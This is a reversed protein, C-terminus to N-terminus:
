GLDDLQEAAISAHRPDFRPNIDLAASLLERARDDDDNAAAIMGAHYLLAPDETGVALAHQMQEDAEEYSGNAYLTWALMDYAGVDQRGAIDARALELAWDPDVDVLFGALHRGESPFEGGTEEALALGLATMEHAKDQDGQYEYLKALEGYIDAIPRAELVAEYGAIADDVRGQAFHVKPLLELIGGNGPDLALGELLVEEAQDIEGTSYLMSGLQFRYFAFGSADLALPGSAAMAEEAFRVAGYTDGRLWALRSQRSLIPASREEEFLREYLAAADDYNGLELHADGAAAMASPDDPHERLVRDALALAPAFEHQAAQASALGLLAQRYEPNDELADHFIQEAEEYLALDGTSRALGVTASGLASRSLYDTPNQDVRAQWFAVQEAPTGLGFDPVDDILAGEASGGADPDPNMSWAILGLVVALPFLVYPLKRTM